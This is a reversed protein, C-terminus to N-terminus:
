NVNEDVLMVVVNVFYCVIQYLTESPYRKRSPKTVERIFKTMWYNLSSVDIEVTPLDLSELEKDNWFFNREICLEEEQKRRAPRFRDAM